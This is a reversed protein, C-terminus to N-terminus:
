TTITTVTNAPCSPIWYLQSQVFLQFKQENLNIVITWNFCQGTLKTV